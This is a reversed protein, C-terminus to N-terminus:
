LLYTFPPPCHGGHFAERPRTPFSLLVMILSASPFSDCVGANDDLAQHIHSAGSIFTVRHSCSSDPPCTSDQPVVDGWCDRPQAPEGDGSPAVHLFLRTNIRM